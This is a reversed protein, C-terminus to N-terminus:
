ALTSKNQNTIPWYRVRHQANNLTSYAIGNPPQVRHHEVGIINSCHERKSLLIQPSNTRIPVFLLLSFCSVEKGIGSVLTGTVLELIGVGLIADWQDSGTWLRSLLVDIM